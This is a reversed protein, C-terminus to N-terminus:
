FDKWHEKRLNFMPKKVKNEIIDYVTQYSCFLKKAAERGSKFHDIINGDDDLLVVPVLKSSKYAGLRGIDTRPLAKLNWIPNDDKIGNLHYIGYGKPFEGNISKYVVHSYNFEKSRHENTLKVLFRGKKWYGTLVRGKDARKIIGTNSVIYNPFDKVPYWKAPVDDHKMKM